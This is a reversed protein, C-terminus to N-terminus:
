DWFVVLWTLAELTQPFLWAIGLGICILGTLMWGITLLFIGGGAFAMAMLIRFLIWGSM